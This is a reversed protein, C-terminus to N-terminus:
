LLTAPLKTCEYIIIIIIIRINKITLLKKNNNGRKDEDMTSPQKNNHQQKKSKNRHQDQYRATHALVPNIIAGNVVVMIAGSNCHGAVFFSGRKIQFPFNIM